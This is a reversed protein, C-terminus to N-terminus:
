SDGAGHHPALRVAGPRDTTTCTARVTVVADLGEGRALTLTRCSFLSRQGRCEIPPTGEGFPALLLPARGREAVRVLAANSRTMPEARPGTIGDRGSVAMTLARADAYVGKAAAFIARLDEALAAPQVEIRSLAAVALVLALAAIWRM